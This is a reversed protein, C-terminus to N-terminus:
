PGPPRSCRRRRYRRSRRGTRFRQTLPKVRDRGSRIRGDPGSKSHLIRTQPTESSRRGNKARDHAHTETHNCHTATAHTQATSTKGQRSAPGDQQIQVKRPNQEGSKQGFSFLLSFYHLFLIGHVAMPPERIWVGSFQMKLLIAYLIRRGRPTPGVIPLSIESRSMPLTVDCGITSSFHCKPTKSPIRHPLRFGQLKRNAPM